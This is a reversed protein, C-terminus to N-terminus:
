RDNCYADWISNHKGDAQWAGEVQYANTSVSWTFGEPMDGGNHRDREQNIPCPDNPWEYDGSGEGSEQAAIASALALSLKM